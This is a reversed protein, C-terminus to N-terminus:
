SNTIAYLRISAAVFYRDRGSVQTQLSHCNSTLGTRRYAITDYGSLAPFIIRFSGEQRARTKLSFTLAYASMGFTAEVCIENAREKQKRCLGLTIDATVVFDM